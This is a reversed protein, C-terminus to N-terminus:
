IHLSIRYEILKCYKFVERWHASLDEVCKKFIEINM